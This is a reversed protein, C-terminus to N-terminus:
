HMHFDPTQMISKQCKALIAAHRSVEALTGIVQKNGDAFGYLAYPIGAENCFEQVLKQARRLNHRPMRPFLHHIAQFQLGGHIFDLWPPCDIDMTTRLMKQAFSEQPGLNATSMAFHSLVIQVHLPSSAIHSVMVFTFRSWNDPIAKYLIGYGFWTWFFIQGVIEVWRFWAAPGKKPGRGALLYDWSLFYLNFRGLALLPYYTWAQIRLLVRAAADYTMVREYYTSRLSGLLRHSVAFLPMHEIDPDHEPANTVIHHVNHNRKWWGMSLGGIFDAVVIALISDVQFNHTVGTHGADHALFVLQHWMYGLCLGSLVYQGYSLFVLTLIFSGLYHCCDLSYGSYNVDFLGEAKAKEHLERYQAVVRAQTADDLAPYKDLDLSIKERTISDLYTMGDMEASDSPQPSSSSSSGAAGQRKRTGQQMDFDFVPSPARSSSSSLDLEKSNDSEDGAQDEMQARTRFVGGQIPPVFNKWPGEIRGIRYRLM